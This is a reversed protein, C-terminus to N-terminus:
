YKPKIPSNTYGTDSAPASSSVLSPKILRPSGIFFRYLLIVMSSALLSVATAEFVGFILNFPVNPKCPRSAPQAEDLIQVLEEPAKAAPSVEASVPPIAANRAQRYMKAVANALQAVEQPTDSYANITLTSKDKGRTIALRGVLIELVEDTRLREGQFFKQGWVECLNLEGVVQTLVPKSLVM